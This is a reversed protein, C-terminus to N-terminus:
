ASGPRTWTRPTPSTPCSRSSSSCPRSCTATSPWGSWCRRLRSACRSPTATTRSGSSRRGRLPTSASPARPLAALLGRRHDELLREPELRGAGQGQAAGEENRSSGSRARRARAGAGRRPRLVQHAQLRGGYQAAPLGPDRRARPRPSAGLGLEGFLERLGPRGSRMRGGDRAGRTSTSRSCRRASRDRPWRWRPHLELAALQALWILTARDDCSSTSRGGLGDRDARHPGLGAHAPRARKEFFRQGEVGDPLPCAHAGPRASPAPDGGRHPRLLRDGPGEHVRRRTPRRTTLAVAVQVEELNTLADRARRGRSAPRQSAIPQEELDLSAQGGVQLKAELLAVEERRRRAELPEGKVAALSEELAAM